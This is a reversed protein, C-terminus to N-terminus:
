KKIYATQKKFCVAKEKCSRIYCTKCNCISSNKGKKKKLKRDFVVFLLFGFCVIIISIDVTNM